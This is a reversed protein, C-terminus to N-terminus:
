SLYELHVMLDGSDEMEDENKQSHAAVVTQVISPDDCLAVVEVEANGLRYAM